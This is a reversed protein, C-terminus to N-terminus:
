LVKSPVTVLMSCPFGSVNQTKHPPDPWPVNPRPYGAVIYISMIFSVTLANKWNPFNLSIYSLYSVPSFNVLILLLATLAAVFKLPWVRKLAVLLACIGQHKQTFMKSGLFEAPPHEPLKVDFVGSVTALYRVTGLNGKKWKEVYRVNTYWYMKLSWLVKFWLMLEKSVGPTKRQQYVSTASAQHANSRNRPCPSSIRLKVRRLNPPSFQLCTKVTMHGNLLNFLKGTFLSTM